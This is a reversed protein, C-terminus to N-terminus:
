MALNEQSFLLSIRINYVVCLLTVNWRGNSIRHYYVFSGFNIDLVRM